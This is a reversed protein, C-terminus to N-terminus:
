IYVYAGGNAVIAAVLQATGYGDVVSAGAAFGGLHLEAPHPLGERRVEVLLHTRIRPIGAPPAVSAREVWPGLGCACVPNRTAPGPAGPAFRLPPFAPAAFAHVIGAGFSRQGPLSLNLLSGGTRLAAQQGVGCVVGGPGGPHYATVTLTCGAFFDVQPPAGPGALFAAVVAGFSGVGASPNLPPLALALARLTADVLLAAAAAGGGGGGGAAAAPQEHLADMAAWLLDWVNPPPAPAPAAARASVAFRAFDRLSGHTPVPGWPAPSWLASLFMVLAHVNELDRTLPARQIALDLVLQAPVPPGAPGPAPRALRPPPAATGRTALVAVGLLALEEPTRPGPASVAAQVLNQFAAAIPDM